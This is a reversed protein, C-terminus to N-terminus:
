RIFKATHTSGDSCVVSAVYVGAPLSAVSVAGVAGDAALVRLGGVSYVDLRRTDMGVPTAVFLMDGEVWVRVVSAASEVNDIGVTSGVTVEKYYVHHGGYPVNNGNELMIMYKGDALSSGCRYTGERSTESGAALSMSFMDILEGNRATFQRIRPRVATTMTKLGKLTLKYSYRQGQMVNEPFDFATVEAEIDANPEVVVESDNGRYSELVTENGSDDVQCLVAVYTGPDQPLARVFTVSVTQCATMTQSQQLFVSSKGTAKDTLRLLVNATGAAGDNRLTVGFAANVGQQLGSSGTVLDSRVRVVPQSPAAKVSVRTTGVESDDFVADEFAPDYATLEYEGPTIDSPIEVALDFQKKSQEYVIESGTAVYYVSEDGVSTLRVAINGLRYDTSRNDIDFGIETKCGAYIEDYSDLASLLVVDPSPTHDTAEMIMGRSVKIDMYQCTGVPHRMMTWAGDVGSRYAFRVRYNGDPLASANVPVNRMTYVPEAGSHGNAYGDLSLSESQLVEVVNDDTDTLVAAIQGAFPEVDNNELGAMMLFGTGFYQARLRTSGYIEAVYESGATQPQIGIVMDQNLNYGGYGGGAGLEGPNLHNLMFYGDSRGYWGWNVHFYGNDDYGDLVFAHGGSGNDSSAGYFVPRRADLEAKIMGTWESTNFYERLYGRTGKDYGFYNRLASAVMQDYAGSGDKVYQMEVAVGFHYCLTSYASIQAATAIEPPTAPMNDWDYSTNGFDASLTQGCGTRDYYSKEGTGSEPHRHYRMIQTAATAVCGVYYHTMSGGSVYTPCLTNFHTDQGWHIDGLLPEVVPTGVSSASQRAEGEDPLSFAYAEYMNMLAILGDPAGDLSFEGSDSYGLVTGLRDDGSVIVFGGGPRPSNFIHYPTRDAVSTGASALPLVAARPEGGIGSEGFFGAAISRAETMGITRALLAPAGLLFLCAITAKKM